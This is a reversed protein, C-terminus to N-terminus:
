RLFDLLSPQMVKATAGLAAQYAVTQLQLDVTAKVMDTNEIESLSSSLRLSADTAATLSYEVRNTRAGIEAHANIIRQGDLELQEAAASVGAGNGGLLADRLDALHNFVSDGDPGFADPGELDVRVTAGDGVTRLVGQSSTALPAYEVVGAVKHYAIKDPTVGGFVPRDLFTANATTMLGDIIQDIEGALADRSPQGVAGSTAQIALERARRVLDTSDALSSDLQNLWGMADNGNRVYQEQSAASTRIRMASTAGTPDDSPRNIIRGTALQEQVKALRNLGMQMGGMAQHSMMSQTMRVTPM